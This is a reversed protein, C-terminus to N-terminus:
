HNFVLEFYHIKCVPSYDVSSVVEQTCDNYHCKPKNKKRRRKKRRRRRIKKQRIDAIVEKDNEKDNQSIIVRIRYYNWLLNTLTQIDESKLCDGAFSSITVRCFTEIEKWDFNKQLERSPTYSYYIGSPIKSLKLVSNMTSLSTIVKRHM